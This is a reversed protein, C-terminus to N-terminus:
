SSEVRDQERSEGHPPVDQEASPYTTAQVNNKATAPRTGVASPRKCGAANRTSRGARCGRKTRKRPPEGNQTAAQLAVSPTSAALLADSEPTAKEVVCRITSSKETLGRSGGSSKIGHVFTAVRILDQLQAETTITSAADDGCPNVASVSHPTSSAVIVILSTSLDVGLIFFPYYPVVPWM